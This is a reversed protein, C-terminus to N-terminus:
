YSFGFEFDLISAGSRISQLGSVGIASFNILWLFVLFVATFIFAIKLSMKEIITNVFASM